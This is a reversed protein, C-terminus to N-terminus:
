GVREAGFPRPPINADRLVLRAAAGARVVVVACQRFRWATRLVPRVDALVLLHAERWRRWVGEAPLAPWRHLAAALRTQMRRNWGEPMRRSFPNWATVFVASRIRHKALLTDMADCRRGIRVAADGCRYATARYARLLHPARCLSM